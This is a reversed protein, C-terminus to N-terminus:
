LRAQLQRLGRGLRRGLETHVRALRRCPAHGTVSSRPGGREARLVAVDTAPDRGILKATLTTGDSLGIQLNDEQEVVHNATVILGDAAYVIGTAPMRRRAEVRVISPGTAEVLAALATSLSTLTESM